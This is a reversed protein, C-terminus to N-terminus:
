PANAGTKRLGQNLEFRSVDTLRRARCGPRDLGPTFYTPPSPFDSITGELQAPAPRRNFLPSTLLYVNRVSLSLLLPHSSCVTM